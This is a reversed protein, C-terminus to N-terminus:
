TPIQATWVQMTADRLLMVVATMRTQLKPMWRPPLPQVDQETELKTLSNTLQEENIRHECSAPAKSWRV